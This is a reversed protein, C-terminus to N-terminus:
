VGGAGLADALGEGFGPVARGSQHLTAYDPTGHVVMNRCLMRLGRHVFLVTHVVAAMLAFLMYAIVAGLIFRETLLAELSAKDLKVGHFAGALLISMAAIFVGLTALVGLAYLLYLRLLQGGTLTSSFRVSQFSTTSVLYREERAKYWVWSLGLTPLFLLWAVLWKLFLPGAEATCNFRENGYWTNNMRYRFLEANKVPTALGATFM